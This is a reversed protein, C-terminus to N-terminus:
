PDQIATVTMRIKQQQQSGPAGYITTTPPTVRFWLNRPSGACQGVNPPVQYGTQNGAYRVADAKQLTGTITSANV